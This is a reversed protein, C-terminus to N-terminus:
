RLAWLVAPERAVVVARSVVDAPVLQATLDGQGVDEALAAAVNREIEADLLHDAIM